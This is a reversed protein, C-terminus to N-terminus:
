AQEDAKYELKYRAIYRGETIDEMDLNKKKVKEYEEKGLREKFQNLFVQYESPEEGIKTM